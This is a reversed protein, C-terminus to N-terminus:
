PWEQLEFSNYFFLHNDIKENFVEEAHKDKVLLHICNNETLKAYFICGEKKLITMMIDINGGTDEPDFYVQTFKTFSLHQINILEIEKRREDSKKDPVKFIVIYLMIFVYLSALLTVVLLYVLDDKPNKISIRRIIVLIDLILTILCSIRTAQKSTLKRKSRKSAM